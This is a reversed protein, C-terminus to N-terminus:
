ARPVIIPLNYRRAIEWTVRAPAWAFRYWNGPMPLERSVLEWADSIAEGWKPLSEPTSQYCDWDVFGPVYASVEATDAFTHVPLEAAFVPLGREVALPLWEAGRYLTPLTNPGEPVTDEGDWTDVDVFGPLLVRGIRSPVKSM